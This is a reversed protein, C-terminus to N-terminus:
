EVMELERIAYRDSPEDQWEEKDIYALSNQLEVYKEAKEKDIFVKFYYHLETSHPTTDYSYVAYCKM